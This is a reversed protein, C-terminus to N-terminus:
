KGGKGARRPQHRAMEDFVKRLRAVIEPHAAAV